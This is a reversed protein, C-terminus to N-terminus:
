VPQAAPFDNINILFDALCDTIPVGTEIETWLYQGDPNVEFFTYGSERSYRMDVAGYYLGLTKILSILKEEINTPLSHPIMKHDEVRGDVGHKGDKYHIEVSFVKNGIITSRIDFEGSIEEQFQVPCGEILGIEELDEPTMRRTEFFGFTTGSFPKYITRGNKQFIRAANPDNSILTRPVQLGLSRALQLQMAKFRSFGRSAIPNVIKIGAAALSGVWAQHWERLAFDKLTPHKYFKSLDIQNPRRWWITDISISTNKSNSKEIISINSYENDLAFSLHYHNALDETKLLTCELGRKDIAAKVALAHVDGDETLIIISM